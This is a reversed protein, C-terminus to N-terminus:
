RMDRHRFDSGRSRFSYTSVRQDRFLWPTRQLGPRRWVGRGAERAEAEDAYYELRQGKDCYKRYVVARGERVLLRDINERVKFVEGVQRGYRDTDYQRVAVRVGRPLLRRLRKRAVKGWPRQDMEPADICYLRITERRGECIAQFTDGDLVTAVQCSHVYFVPQRYRTVFGWVVVVTAIVLLAWQFYRGM